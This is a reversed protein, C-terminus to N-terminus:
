IKPNRLYFFLFSVFIKETTRIAKRVIVAEYIVKKTNKIKISNAIDKYGNNLINGFNKKGSQM